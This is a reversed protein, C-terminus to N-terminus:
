QHCLYRRLRHHDPVHHFKVKNCMYYFLYTHQDNIRSSSHLEAYRVMIFLIAKMAYILPSLFEYDCYYEDEVGLYIVVVTWLTFPLTSAEIFWRSIQIWDVSRTNMLWTFIVAVSVYTVTLRVEFLIYRCIRDLRSRDLRTDRQEYILFNEVHEDNFPDWIWLGIMMFLSGVLPLVIFWTLYWVYCFHLFLWSSSTQGCSSLLQENGHLIMSTSKDFYM